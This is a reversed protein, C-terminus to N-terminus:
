RRLRYREWRSSEIMWAERRYRDDEHRQVRPRWNADRKWDDARTWAEAGTWLEWDAGVHQEMSPHGSTGGTYHM